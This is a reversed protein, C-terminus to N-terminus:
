AKKLTLINVSMAPATYTFRRAAGTQQLQVDRVNDPSDITNEDEARGTLLSLTYDREVECDLEISVEDPQEAFNVIKVYITDETDTVVSCLSQYSPIEVEDVLEDNCYLSVSTLTTVYKLKNFQGMKLSLPKRASVAKARFGGRVVQSQGDEIVWRLMELFRM